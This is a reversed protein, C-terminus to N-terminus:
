RGLILFRTGALLVTGGGGVAVKARTIAGTDRYSIGRVIMRNNAATSDPLANRVEGIKNWTTQTYAPITMAILGPQNAVLGASGVNLAWNNSGPANGATVVANTGAVQELDYIATTLNNLTVLVTGAAGAEDTRGVIFMELVTQTQPIGNAGTDISATNAGLTSDFLVASGSGAGGGGSELPM